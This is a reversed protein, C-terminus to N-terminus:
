APATPWREFGDSPSELPDFISSSIEIECNLAMQEATSARTLRIPRGIRTVRFPSCIAWTM